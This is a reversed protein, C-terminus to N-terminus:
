PEIGLISRAEAYHAAADAFRRAARAQKQQGTHASARVASDRLVAAVRQYEAAVKAALIPERALTARGVAPIPLSNGSTM